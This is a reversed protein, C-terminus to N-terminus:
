IGRNKFTLFVDKDFRDSVYSQSVIMRRAQMSSFYYGMGQYLWGDASRHPDVHEVDDWQKGAASHYRFLSTRMMTHNSEGLGFVLGLRKDVLPYVSAALMQQLNELLNKDKRLIVMTRNEALWGVTFSLDHEFRNDKKLLKKFEEPTM